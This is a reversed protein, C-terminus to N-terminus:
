VILLGNYFNVINLNFNEKKAFNILTQTIDIAFVASSVIITSGDTVSSNEISTVKFENIKYPKLKARTDIIGNITVGLKQLIPSLEKFFQGGGYIYVNNIDPNSSLIEIIKTISDENIGKVKLSNINAIYDKDLNTIVGQVWPIRGIQYSSNSANNLYATKIGLNSIVETHKDMILQEVITSGYGEDHYLNGINKAEITNPVDILRSIFDLITESSYLNKSLKQTKAIKFFADIGKDFALSTAQIEEINKYPFDTVAEITNDPNEKYNLTTQNVGNFLIEIFEPSRRLREIKQKTQQSFPLFPITKRSLMKDFGSSHMYFLINLKQVHDDGLADSINELISGTGGFDILISNNSYSFQHLYKRFLKKEQNVNKIVEKMRQQFDNTIIDLLNIDSSMYQNAVVLLKDQQSKIYSDLIELKFLDYFNKITFNRYKYFDFGDKDLNDVNVAPLFTSKRSAYILNVDLKKNIKKIYKSFIRGERMVCNVQSIDNDKALQNIWHSFEWITPGFISAGLNFFFREDENKYPNLLSAQIRYNNNKTRSKIYNSELNLVENVYEDCAYHISAIGKEKAMDIDSYKNDGIHLLEKPNIGLDNMVIPYLNGTAKTASYENSVYIKSIFKQNELKSIVLKKLEKKSLYMDSILVVKKGAKIAKKIWRQIQPNIYLSKYEEKLELKIIKKRQADNLPLENYILELTIDELKSNLSRARNEAQIRFHQFTEAKDYIKKVYSHNGLLYFIDIPKNVTRFALTEFIDFSIVKISKDKIRKTFEKDLISNKM